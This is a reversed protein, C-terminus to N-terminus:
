NWFCRAIIDDANMAGDLMPFGDSVSLARPQFTAAVTSVPLHERIRHEILTVIDTVNPFRSVLWWTPVYPHSSGTPSLSRLKLRPRVHETAHWVAQHDAEAIGSPILISGNTALVVFRMWPSFRRELEPPPEIKFWAFIEEDTSAGDDDL